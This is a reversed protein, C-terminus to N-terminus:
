QSINAEVDAMLVKPLSIQYHVGEGEISNFSLDGKLKQHVLNYVLNLGLGSGGKGRKTTFFPEFIKKHLHAPIGCGNDTYEFVINDGDQQFTIVIKPTAPPVEFGHKVSNMVLNSIIQTLTGPLSNMTLDSDGILEPTVPIKRTAPHLSTILSSLVQTINFQDRTESVQDVATQKFDKVLKAARNLNQELLNSGGQLKEIQDQFQETTLTQSHFAQALETLSEKIVSSATVSIGLPTNVEHAVGAVLGGLAALKESEILQNQAKQLQTLSDKLEHTREQVLAELNENMEELRLQAEKLETINIATGRYGLFYDESDVLAKAQFLVFEKGKPYNMEIELLEFSRKAQIHTIFTKSEKLFPVNTIKPTPIDDLYLASTMEDSCYTLEFENNTEWLWDSAVDTFDQLRKQESKLNTYLTALNSTLKNVDYALMSIEDNDRTIIKRNALKLPQQTHRPNYRRLYKMIAFLRDNISYHFIVLIIYCVIVTKVLNIFFTTIFQNLLSSYIKSTDSEVILLGLKEQNNNFKDHYVINFNKRLMAAQPRHGASLKYIESDIELYDIHPIKVLANLREQLLEQDFNWLSNALLDLQINEIEKHRKEVDNFQESYSMYIQGLTTLLTISGSIIVLLLIIRRGLRSDTPKDLSNPELFTM